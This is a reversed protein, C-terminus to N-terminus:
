PWIALKRRAVSIERTVLLISIRLLRGDEKGFIAPWKLLVCFGKRAGAEESPNYGVTLVRSIAVM